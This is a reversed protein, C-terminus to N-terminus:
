ATDALYAAPPALMNQLLPAYQGCTFYGWNVTRMVKLCIDGINDVFDPHRRMDLTILVQAVRNHHRHIVMFHKVGNGLLKVWGDCLAVFSRRATNLACDAM